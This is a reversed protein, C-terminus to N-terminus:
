GVLWGSGDDCEIQSPVMLQGCLPCKIANAKKSM